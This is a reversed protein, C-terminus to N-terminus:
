EQREPLVVTFKSGEGPQSDVTVMGNHREAIRRVIALGMGMGDTQDAEQPRFFPKFLSALHEQAIGRGNDEVIIAVQRGPRPESRVRIQPPVGPRAYRMANSLLNQLLQGMQLGDAAIVPLLGVDIEAHSQKVLLELDQLVDHVTENLDVPLFSRGQTAVRSYELMGDILARMRTSAAQMRHVYDLQNATLNESNNSVLLDGFAQVKRLPERLDHSVIFAFDQLDQNSHKLQEMYHHLEKEARKRETIDELTAVAAVTQGNADTVPTSRINMIREVGTPLFMNIEEGSVVEQRLISRALPWDQPAVARGDAFFATWRSYAEVGPIEDNQIGLLRLLSANRRLIRGTPAEAIVVGSLMQDLVATLLAQETQMAKRAEVEETIEILQLLVGEMGGHADMMPIISLDYHALELGSGHDVAISFDRSLFSEGSRYVGDLTAIFVSAAEPWVEAVTRGILEGKGRAVQEFAPNVYQYRYNPGQLFAIGVPAEAMMRELLERQRRIEESLRQRETFDAAFGLTRVAKGQADRQVVARDLIHVWYGDAHRLRYEMEYMDCDSEWVENLKQMVLPYDDPHMNKLWWNHITTVTNPYGLLREVGESHYIEQTELNWDYLLGSIAQTALRFRKESEELAKRALHQETMNFFYAVGTLTGDPNEGLRNVAILIPVRSGDKRILEKEFPTPTLGARMEVNAREDLARYEPPTLKHWNIRGAEFDERSYDVLQLFADNVEHLTGTEDWLQVGIAGVDFIRRFKTANARLEEEAQKSSTIDRLIGGRYLPTGDESVQVSVHDAVWRYQDDKRRFRYEVRAKGTLLARGMEEQLMPLDDPHVREFVEATSMADMEEPTFGLVQTVVPSIYDYRDTILDRRYAVDLSHELVARFREQAERQAQEAQKREIAYRIIRELLLPTAESKSLYMTAGAQMAEVDVAYSGRGTFLILPAAYGEAVLDRILEIGTGEGMDYDILAADFNRSRLKDRGESLSAAWELTVNSGQAQALMGRVLIFDEEDDDVHLIHWSRQAKEM